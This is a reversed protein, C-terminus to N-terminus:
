YTNFKKFLRKLRDEGGLENIVIETGKPVLAQWDEDMIMRRRTETGSALREADIAQVNEGLERYKQFKWKDFESTLPVYWVRKEPIFNLALDLRIYPRQLPIIHIRELYKALSSRIMSYREWFTFPNRAEHFQPFAPDEPFRPDPNMVGIVLQKEKSLIGTVLNLHGIHFPQFRGTFIAYNKPQTDNSNTQAVLNKNQRGLPENRGSLM